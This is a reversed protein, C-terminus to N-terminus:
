FNLSPPLFQPHKTQSSNSLTNISGISREGMYLWYIGSWTYTRAAIFGDFALIGMALLLRVDFAYALVVGYVAWLLLANESPTINFIQGFLYRSVLSLQTPGRYGV